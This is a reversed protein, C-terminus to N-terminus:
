RRTKKSGLPQSGGREHEAILFDAELLIDNLDADTPGDLNRGGSRYLELAAEAMQERLWPEATEFASILKAPLPQNNQKNQPNEASLGFGSSGDLQAETEAILSEIDPLGTLIKYVEVRQEKSAVEWAQRLPQPTKNLAQEAIARAENALALDMDKRGLIEFQKALYIKVAEIQNALPAEADGDKLFQYPEVGLASALSSITELSPNGEGGLIRSLSAQSIDAIKALSSANLGRESMMKQLNSVFIKSDNRM